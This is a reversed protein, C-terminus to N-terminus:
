LSNLVFLITQQIHFKQPRKFSLLTYCLVLRHRQKTIASSVLFVDGSYINVKDAINIIKKFIPAHTNQAGYKKPPFIRWM